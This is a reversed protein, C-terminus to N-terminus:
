NVERNKKEEELMKELIVIRQGLEKTEEKLKSVNESQIFLLYMTFIIAVLFLLSPAYEIGVIVSMQSVLSPFLALIMMTASGILWLFSDKEFFRKKKVKLVVMVSFILSIITFFIRTTSM